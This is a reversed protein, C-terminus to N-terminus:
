LSKKRATLCSQVPHLREQKLSTKVCNMNKAYKFNHESVLSFIFNLPTPIKEKVISFQFFPPALSNCNEPPNSNEPFHCNNYIAM